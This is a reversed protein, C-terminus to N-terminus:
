LSFTGSSRRRRHLLEKDKETEEYIRRHDVDERNYEENAIMGRPENKSSMRRPLPPTTIFQTGEEIPPMLFSSSSSSGGGGAGGGGGPASSHQIKAMTREQVISRARWRNREAELGRIKQSIEENTIATATTSTTSSADDMEDVSRTTTRLDSVQQVLKSIIDDQSHRLMQSHDLQKRLTKIITEYDCSSSLSFGRSSADSATTSVTDDDNKYQQQQQQQQAIELQNQLLQFRRKMENEEAHMLAVAADQSDIKTQLMEREDELERIRHKLDQDSADPPLIQLQYAVERVKKQNEEEAKVSLFHKTRKLEELLISNELQLDALREKYADQEKKAAVNADTLTTLLDKNKEELEQVLVEQRRLFNTKHQQDEDDHENRSEFTNEDESMQSVTTGDDDLSLVDSSTATPLDDDTYDGQTAIGDMEADFRALKKEMHSKVRLSLSRTKKKPQRDKPIFLSDSSALKDIYIQMLRMSRLIEQDEIDRELMETRHTAKLIMIEEELAACKRCESGSAVTGTPDNGSFSMLLETYTPTATSSCKKIEIEHAAPVPGEDDDVTLPSESKQVKITDEELYCGSDDDSEIRRINMKSAKPSSLIVVSGQREIPNSCNQKALDKSEDNQNAKDEDGDHGRVAEVIAEKINANNDPNEDAVPPIILQTSHHLHDDSPPLSVVSPTDGDVHDDFEPSTLSSPSVEELTPHEDEEEEEEEQGEQKQQHFAETEKMTSPVPQHTVEQNWYAAAMNAEEIVDSRSTPPQEQQQQQQESHELTDFLEAPFIGQPIVFSNTSVTTKGVTTEEDPITGGVGVGAGEGMLSAYDEESSKWLSGDTQQHQSPEEDGYGYAYDDNYDDENIESPPEHHVSGDMNLEYYENQGPPMVTSAKRKPSTSLARLLSLGEVTIEEQQQPPQKQHEQEQRQPPEKPDDYYSSLDQLTTSNITTMTPHRRHQHYSDEITSTSALWRTPDEPFSSEVSRGDDNEVVVVVSPSTTASEWESTNTPNQTVVSPQQGTGVAAAAAATANTGRPGHGSQSAEDYYLSTVSQADHAINRKKHPDEKEEEEETEVLDNPTGWEFNADQSVYNRPSSNQNTTTNTDEYPVDANDPFFHFTSPPLLEQGESHSLPTTATTTTMAMPTTTINTNLIKDEGGQGGRTAKGSSGGCGGGNNLSYSSLAAARSRFDFDDRVEFGFDQLPIEEVVVPPAPAASASGGGAFPPTATAGRRQNSSGRNSSSSTPFRGRTQEEEDEEEDVARYKTAAKSSMGNLLFLSRM